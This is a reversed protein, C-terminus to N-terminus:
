PFASLVLLRDGLVNHQIYWVRRDNPICGIGLNIEDDDDDDDHDYDDHEHLNLHTEQEKIRL